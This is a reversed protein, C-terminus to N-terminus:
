DEAVNMAFVPGIELTNAETAGRLNEDFAPQNDEFRLRGELWYSDVIAADEVFRIFFRNQQTAGRAPPQQTQATAGAQAALAAAVVWLSALVKRVTM